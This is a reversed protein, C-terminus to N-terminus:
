AWSTGLIAVGVIDGTRAGEEGEQLLLLGDATAMAVLRGQPHRIAQGILPTAELFFPGPALRVRIAQAWHMQESSRRLARTLRAPVVSFPPDDTGALSLLGPLAVLLFATECAAPTRPLLFVPHNESIWAATKRGPRLRIREFLKEYGHSRLVTKLSETEEPDTLGSILVADTDELARELAATPDAMDMCIPTLGCRTCWASLTIACSPAGKEAAPALGELNMASSEDPRYGRALIAVRPTQHVEIHSLGTAFLLGLQSPNLARGRMVLQTGDRIDDGAFLAGSGRSIQGGVLLRAGRRIVEEAPIVANAGAPLPAGASVRVAENESISGPTATEQDVIQLEVLNQPNGDRTDICRVAYGDRTAVGIPPVQFPAVLDRAPIRGHAGEIALREIGVPVLVTRLKELASGYAEGWPREQDLGNQM